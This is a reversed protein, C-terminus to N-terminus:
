VQLHKKISLFSGIAGFATGIIIGLLTLVTRGKKRFLIRLSGTIIDLM